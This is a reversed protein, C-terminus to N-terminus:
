PEVSAGIGSGGGKTGGGVLPLLKVGAFSANERCVGLTEGRAVVCDSAISGATIGLAL